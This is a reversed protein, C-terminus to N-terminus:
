FRVPFINAEAIDVNEAVNSATRLAASVKKKDILADMLVKEPVRDFCVPWLITADILKNAPPSILDVLFNKEAAIFEKAAAIRLKIKPGVGASLVNMTIESFLAVSISCSM